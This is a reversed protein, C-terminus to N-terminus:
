ILESAISDYVLRGRETLQILPMGTIFGDKELQILTEQTEKPIVCGIKQQLLPLSVGDFYRLGVTLLEKFRDEKSIQETLDFVFRGNAMAQIYSSIDSKNTYRILSYFGSASPGFGLYSRGTWYGINHFSIAGKKAFASIEYQTFGHKKLLEQAHQYLLLSEEEKPM